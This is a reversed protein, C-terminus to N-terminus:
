KIQEVAEIEDTNLKYLGINITNQSTEDRYVILFEDPKIVKLIMNIENIKNANPKSIEEIALSNNENTVNYLTNKVGKNEIDIVSVFLFNSNEYSFFSSFRSNVDVENTVQNTLLDFQLVKNNIRDILGLTNEDLIIIASLFSIDPKVPLTIEKIENSSTKLLYTKFPANTTPVFERFLLYSNNDKSFSDIFYHEKYLMNNAEMEAPSMSNSSYVEDDRLLAMKEATENKILINLTKNDLDYEHIGEKSTIFIKQNDDSINISSISYMAGLIQQDSLKDAVSFVVTREEKEIDYIVVDTPRTQTLNKNKKGTIFILLKKDQVVLSQSVEEDITNITKKLGKHLLVLEGTQEYSIYPDSVVAPNENKQQMLNSLKSSQNDTNKEVINEKKNYFFFYTILLIITFLLLLSLFVFIYKKTVKKEEDLVLQNINNEISPNSNEQMLYSKLM